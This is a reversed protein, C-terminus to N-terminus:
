GAGGTLRYDHGLTLAFKVAGTKAEPIFPVRAGTTTDTVALTAPNWGTNDNRVTARSIGDGSTYRYSSGGTAIPYVKAWLPGGAPPTDRFVVTGKGGIFIPLKGLPFRYGRLTTPGTFAQGSNFDIWRGPPLVVDAACDDLVPLSTFCAGTALISQGLMWEPNPTDYVSPQGPYAVPLPTMTFPYGTEFSDSAASWIYPRFRAHWVAAAKVSARWAPNSINWPGYGFAMAPMVATVTANRVFYRQEDETLGTGAQNAGMVIDPYYNPAASAGYAVGIRSIDAPTGFHGNYATDERRSLDGPVSWAANRVIVYRGAASLAEDAKNVKDDAYPFGGGCCLDEKFGDVGWRNTGAMYWALAGPDHQTDVHDLHGPIMYGNAQAQPWYPNGPEMNIRLGLLLKVGRVAFFAKLGKPDPFRPPDSSGPSGDDWLGFRTTGASTPKPNGRWFGSGIVAWSLPYGENLFRQVYAQAPAQRADWGLAGYSEWGLGFAAAKPKADPYGNSAKVAKYRAYIRPMSGIFYYLRRVDRVGAAGLRNEAGTVAVRKRGPEFLVQAFGQAPYVVFNSVFRISSANSSLGDDVVNLAKDRGRDGLGYGRGVAATRLDIVYAGPVVPVVQFKSYDPRPYFYVDARDGHRTTVMMHVKDGDYGVYTTNAAPYPQTGNPASFALGSVPHARAVLAGAPNTFQYRFGAKVITLVYTAETVRITTADQVVTPVARAAPSIGLVTTAVALLVAAAVAPRQCNRRIRASV